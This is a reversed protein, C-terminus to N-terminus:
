DLQFYNMIIRIHVQAYLTRAYASTLFTVDVSYTPTQIVIRSFSQRLTIDAM